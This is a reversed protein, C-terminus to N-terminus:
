AVFPSEKNLDIRIYRIVTEKGLPLDREYEVKVYLLPHSYTKFWKTRPLNHNFSIRQNVLSSDKNNTLSKANTTASEYKFQPVKLQFSAKISSINKDANEYYVVLKYEGDELKKEDDNIVETPRIVEDLKIILDFDELKEIKTLNKRGFTDDGFKFTYKNSHISTLALILFTIPIVVIFSLLGIKLRRRHFWEKTFRKRTTAM